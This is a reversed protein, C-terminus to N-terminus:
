PEDPYPPQEILTVAEKFGTVGWCGTSEPVGFWASNLLSCIEDADDSILAQQFRYVPDGTDEAAINERVVACAAEAEHATIEGFFRPTNKLPNALNTPHYNELLITLAPAKDRAYQLWEEKTNLTM